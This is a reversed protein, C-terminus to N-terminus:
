PMMRKLAEDEIGLQKAVALLHAKDILVYRTGGISKIEFGLERLIKGVQWSNLDEGDDKLGKEIAKLAVREKLQQSNQEIALSVLKSVVLQSPEYGQGVSLSAIAKNLEGLAYAMWDTDKCYLATQFLPMWTDAARGDPLFLPKSWDVIKAVTALDAGNLIPM